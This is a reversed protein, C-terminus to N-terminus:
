PQLVACSEAATRLGAVARCLGPLAASGLRPADGSDVGPRPAIQGSKLDATLPLQRSAHLQTCPTCDHPDVASVTMDTMSNDAICATAVELVPQVLKSLKGDLVSEVVLKGRVEQSTQRESGAAKRQEALLRRREGEAKYAANREDWRRYKAARDAQQQQFRDLM